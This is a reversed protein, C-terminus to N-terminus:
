NHTQPKSINTLFIGSTNTIANVVTNGVRIANILSSSDVVIAQNAVLTGPSRGGAIPVVSDKIGIFLVNSAGSFALEGNALTTPAATSDSRKIQILNPM